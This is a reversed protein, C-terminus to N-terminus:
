PSATEAQAIKRETFKKAWPPSQGYLIALGSNCTDLIMLVQKAVNVYAWNRVTHMDLAGTVFDNDKPNAKSFLLYGVEGQNGGHGSYYFLFRDRNTLYRPDQKSFRNLLYQNLGSADVAADRVEFVTDFGGRTLLFERMRSVDKATHKLSDLHKYEGVGVLFAISRGFPPNIPKVLNFQAALRDWFIPQPSPPRSRDFRWVGNSEYVPQINNPYPGPPRQQAALSLAFSAALTLARLAAPHPPNM